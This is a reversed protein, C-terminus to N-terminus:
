ESDREESRQKQPTVVFLYFGVCPDRRVHGHNDRVRSVKAAQMATLVDIVIM